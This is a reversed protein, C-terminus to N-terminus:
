LAVCNIGKYKNKQLLIYKVPYAISKMISHIASILAKTVLNVVLSQM